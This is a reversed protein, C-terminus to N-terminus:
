FIHMECFINCQLKVKCKDLIHVNAYHNSSFINFKQLLTISLLSWTILWRKYIINKSHDWTHAVIKNPLCGNYVARCYSPIARRAICKKILNQKFRVKKWASIFLNRQFVISRFVNCQSLRNNELVLDLCYHHNINLNLCQKM